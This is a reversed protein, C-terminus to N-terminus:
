IEFSLPSFLQAIVDVMISKHLALRQYFYHFDRARLLVLRATTLFLYALVVDREFGFYIRLLPIM